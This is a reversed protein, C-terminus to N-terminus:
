TLPIKNPTDSNIPLKMMIGKPSQTFLLYKFKKQEKRIAIQQIKNIM